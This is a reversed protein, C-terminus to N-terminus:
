RRTRILRFPVMSSSEKSPKWAPMDGEASRPAISASRLASCAMLDTALVMDSACTALLESKSLFMLSVLWRCSSANRRIVGSLSGKMPAHIAADVLNLFSDASWNISRCRCTCVRYSVRKAEICRSTAKKTRKWSIPLRTCSKQGRTEKPRRPYSMDLDCDITRMAVVAEGTEPMSTRM